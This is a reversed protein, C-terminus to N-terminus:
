RGRRRGPDAQADGRLRLRRSARCPARRRDKAMIEAAQYRALQRGSSLGLSLATLIERPDAPSLKDDAEPMRERYRLFSFSALVFPGAATPKLLASDTRQERMALM